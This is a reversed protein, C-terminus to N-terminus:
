AYDVLVIEWALAQTLELECKVWVRKLAVIFDGVCHACYARAFGHDLIGCKFYDKFEQEM